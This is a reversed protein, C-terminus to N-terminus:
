LTLIFFWVRHTPNFSDYAYRNIIATKGVAYDGLFIVKYIELPQSTLKEKNQM